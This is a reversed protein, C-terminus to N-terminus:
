SGQGSRRFEKLRLKIAHDEVGESGDLRKGLYYSRQWKQKAADGDPNKLDDIFGRRSDSWEGHERALEADDGIEHFEPEVDEMVGRQVPLVSCFPEGEAFEVWTDTRTLKWNMTFSYPSWDTEIVGTLPSIGDKPMNVPGGIMLNWGPETRFVGHVHFTLIGHGFGCDLMQAVDRNKAAFQMGEPSNSGSWRVRFEHKLHFSWGHANAITLPLCRYAFAQNTADMWARKADNPRLDVLDPNTAYFKLKM